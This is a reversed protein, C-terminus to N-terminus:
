RRSINPSNFNEAICLAQSFLRCKAVGIVTGGRFSTQSVLASIEYQYMDIGQAPYHKQSSSVDASTLMRPFARPCRIFNVCPLNFYM